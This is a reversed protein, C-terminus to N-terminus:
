RGGAALLDQLARLLDTETIIGVLHGGGNDSVPLCGIHDDMMLAVATGLDADPTITTVPKHMIEGIEVPAEQFCRAALQLDRRAVLGACNGTADLVPLHHLNKEQMVSFAEQYDAGTEITVPAPSMYDRVQMAAAGTPSANNPNMNASSATGPLMRWTCASSFHQQDLLPRWGFSRWPRQLVVARAGKGQILHFARWPDASLRYWGRRRRWLGSPLRACRRVQAM